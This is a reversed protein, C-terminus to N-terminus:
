KLVVPSLLVALPQCASKKLVEPEWFVALPMSAIIFLRVPFSLTATPNPAPALRVSPDFLM